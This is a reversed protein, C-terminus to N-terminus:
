PVRRSLREHSDSHYGPAHPSIRLPSTPFKTLLFELFINPCVLCSDLLVILSVWCKRVGPVACMTKGSSKEGFPRQEGVDREFRQDKRGWGPKEAVGPQGACNADPKLIGSYSPPTPITRSSGATGRSVAEQVGEKTVTTSSFTPQIPAM